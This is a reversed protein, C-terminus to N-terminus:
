RVEVCAREIPAFREAASGQNVAIELFGSGGILALATGQPVDSFTSRISGVSIGNVRVELPRQAGRAERLHDEHINTVMGGFRDVYIVGGTWGGQASTARQLDPLMELIDTARGFAHRKVGNVLHAAAPAMIDRGHFTSSVKSLAYRRDEVVHMSELPHERHVWTILGNDPAVVLRGAYQGLIIRRNSGVGPDVVALHVTEKPFQSWTRWLVFAAQRVNFPDIEHTIDIIRAQPALTLIVGKLEGVYHDRLGYDTLLTIISM